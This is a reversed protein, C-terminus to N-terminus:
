RRMCIGGDVSPCGAETTTAAAAPEEVSARQIKATDGDAGYMQGATAYLIIGYPTASARLCWSLESVGNM